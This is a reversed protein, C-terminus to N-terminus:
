HSMNCNSMVYVAESPSDAEYDYDSFLHLETRLNRGMIFIQIM